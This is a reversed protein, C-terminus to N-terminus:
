TYPRYIGFLPLDSKYNCVSRQLFSGVEFVGVGGSFVGDSVASSGGIASWHM